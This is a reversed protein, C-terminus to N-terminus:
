EFASATARAESSRSYGGPRKRTLAL